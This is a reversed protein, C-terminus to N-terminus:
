SFLFINDILRIGELYVAICLAVQKQEKVNKIPELTESNVVEFYELTLDPYQSLFNKVKEETSAISETQLCEKGIKLAQYIKGAVERQAAPIRLNRSSMALGDSERFIPCCHLTLPFSLDKVMQQIVLYQQLDKQGFYANDPDVLHFLKSVVIAVGNFHGPRFKGEMVEELKGFSIKIRPTEKYIEQESPFFLLDCGVKKLKEIDQDLTRPYHALDSSNNFQLPNVFISAVTIENEKKSSQILSLHGEHLAGMTPVFGVSKGSIKANKIYLKLESSSNFVKM